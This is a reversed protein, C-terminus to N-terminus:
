QLVCTKSNFIPDFTFSGDREHLDIPTEDKLHSITMQLVGEKDIQPTEM